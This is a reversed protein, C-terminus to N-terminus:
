SFTLSLLSPKFLKRTGRVEFVCVCVCLCVCVCVCVCKMCVSQRLALVVVARVYLGTALCYGGGESRTAIFVPSSARGQFPCRFPRRTKHLNRTSEVYVSYLLYIYVHM